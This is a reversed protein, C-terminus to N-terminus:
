LTDPPSPKSSSNTGRRHGWKISDTSDGRHSLKAPPKKRKDGKGRFRKQKGQCTTTQEQEIVADALDTDQVGAAQPRDDSDIDMSVQSMDPLVSAQGDSDGRHIRTATVVAHQVMYLTDQHRNPQTQDIAIDMDKDQGGATQLRDINDISMPENKKRAGGAAGALRKGLVGLGPLSPRPHLRPAGAGTSVQSKCIHCMWGMDEVYNQAAQSGPTHLCYIHVAMPCTDIECTM